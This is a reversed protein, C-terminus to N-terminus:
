EYGSAVAEPEFGSMEWDGVFNFGLRHWRADRMLDFKGSTLSTTMDTTLADGSSNKWYNTLTASTPASIFRPRVRTITTFQEDSGIDGTTFSTSAAAGTLTKVVHDTGFIGPLSLSSNLFALDFPVSPFDNYTAYSGGMGDFTIGPTVYEITMEISRDDQGWRDTRYNYVVCHDPLQSDSVPYYFYIRSNIRDHLAACAYYRSQLLQGFVTEKVRNTGIPFPKSGDYLYFDDSGMFIHKPSEPTGVNVVAEQSMAGAIGQIQAFEWINPPGVNVGLFMSDKKYAVITNGFKRGATIPGPTATITDSGAQTAISPTWITYDNLACWAVGQANTSLNLGFVFKGVTEVIAAIPAGAVCSFAGVTASAQITNAGNGAISVNGFQAFRWRQTSNATYTAARSVDTWTSSAAEYLKTGTGAFFRTSADLKTLVAAGQCTAALTALPTAAPSPAGKMGKLSPVVGSCNTIVGVISPDADPTFGLLRVIADSM